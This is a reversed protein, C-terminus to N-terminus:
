CWYWGLVGPSVLACGFTCLLNVAFNVRVLLVLGAGHWAFGFGGVEAKIAIGVSGSEVHLTLSSVLYDLGIKIM